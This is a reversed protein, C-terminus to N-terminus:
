REMLGENGCKQSSPHLFRLDLIRARIVSLRDLGIELQGSVRTDERTDERADERTDVRTDERTDERTGERSCRM